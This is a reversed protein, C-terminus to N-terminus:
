LTNMIDKKNEMDIHYAIIEDIFTDIDIGHNEAYRCFYRYANEVKFDFNPRYSFNLYPTEDLLLKKTCIELIELDKKPSYPPYFEFEIRTWDDPQSGYWNKKWNHKLDINKEYIRVWYGSNKESLYSVSSLLDKTYWARINRTSNESPHIWKMADQPFPSAFDFAVDVRTSRVNKELDTYLNQFRKEIYERFHFFAGYFDFRGVSNKMGLWDKYIEFYIIPVAWINEFTVIVQYAIGRPSRTRSILAWQDYSVSANNEDVAWFYWPLYKEIYGMFQKQSSFTFRRYDINIGMITKALKKRKYEPIDLISFAKMYKLYTLTYSIPKYSANTSMM